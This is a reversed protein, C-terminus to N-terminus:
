EAKRELVVEWSSLKEEGCFTFGKNLYKNEDIQRLTEAGYYQNDKSQFMSLITDGVIMLRGNLTGLAPNISSWTTFDRGQAIPAISYKNFFRMPQDGCVEMFGDLVWQDAQHEILTEGWVDTVNAQRDYYKGKARWKADELIYTHRM